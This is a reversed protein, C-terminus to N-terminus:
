DGYITNEAWGETAEDNNVSTRNKDDSTAYISNDMWGSEENDDKGANKKNKDVSAYLAPGQNVEGHDDCNGQSKKNKDVQAYLYEKDQEQIDHYVDDTDENLNPPSHSAFSQNTETEKNSTPTTPAVQIRQLTIDYPGDFDLRPNRSSPAQKKSRKVLYVILLATLIIIFIGGIVAGTTIGPNKWSQQGANEQSNPPLSTTTSKTPTGTKIPMSTMSQKDKCQLGNRMFGPKCTCQYGNEEDHCEANTDCTKSDECENVLRCGLVEFSLGCDNECYTPNIRLYRTSIPELFTIIVLRNYNSNAPFTKRNGKNPDM